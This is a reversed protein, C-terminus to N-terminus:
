RLLRGLEARLTLFAPGHSPRHWLAAALDYVSGGRRCGFCFWGREPDPYVHFSPSTEVHLPCLVKRSHPVVRGTLQEVYYAPDLALLPDGDRDRRAGSRARPTRPARAISEPPPDAPLADLLESRSWVRDPRFTALATPRAPAQKHNWAGPPRMVRPADTTRLDGGVALALRLNLREIETASVADRLLWYVHLYGPTGSRVVLAPALPFRAVATGADCRDCDVWLIRHTPALDARSGGRRVRPLVGVFVEAGRACATVLRAADLPRDAAVFRQTMGGGDRAIRLEILDGPAASAFVLRLFAVCVRVQLSPCRPPLSVDSMLLM